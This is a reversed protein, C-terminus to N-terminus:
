QDRGLTVLIVLLQRSICESTSWHCSIVETNDLNHALLDQYLNPCSFAVLISLCCFPIDSTSWDRRMKRICGQQVSKLPPLELSAWTITSGDGSWGERNDWVLCGGHSGSWSVSKQKCELFKSGTASTLLFCCQWTWMSLFLKALLMQFSSLHEFAGDGLQQYTLASEDGQRISQLVKRFAKAM